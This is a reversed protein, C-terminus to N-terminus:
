YKLLVSVGSGRSVSLRRPGPVFCTCYSEDVSCAFCCSSAGAQTQFRAPRVRFRSRRHGLPGFRNCRRRESVWAPRTPKSGPQEPQSLAQLVSALGRAALGHEFQRTKRKGGCHLEGLGGGKRRPGPPAASRANLRQDFPHGGTTPRENAAIWVGPTRARDTRRGM